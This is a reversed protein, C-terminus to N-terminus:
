AEVHCVMDGVAVTTDPGAVIELLTGDCPAAVESIVKETEIEYM